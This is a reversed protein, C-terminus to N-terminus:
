EEDMGADPRTEDFRITFSPYARDVFELIHNMVKVADFRVDSMDVRM